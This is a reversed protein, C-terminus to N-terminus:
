SRIHISIILTIVTKITLEYDFPGLSLKRFICWKSILLIRNKHNRSRFQVTEFGISQQPYRDFRTRQM